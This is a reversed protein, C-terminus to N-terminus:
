LRTINKLLEWWIWPYFKGFCYLFISSFHFLYLMKKHFKQTIRVIVKMQTHSHCHHLLNSSPGAIKSVLQVLRRPYMPSTIQLDFRQSMVQVAFLPHLVPAQQPKNQFLSLINHCL